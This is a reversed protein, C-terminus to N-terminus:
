SKLGNGMVKGVEGPDLDAFTLIKRLKSIDRGLMEALEVVSKVQGTELLKMWRHALSINLPTCAFTQDDTAVQVPQWPKNGALLIQKKPRYTELVLPIIVSTENLIRNEERLYDIQAQQKRNVWGAFVLLLFQLAPSMNEM